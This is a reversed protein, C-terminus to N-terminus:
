LPFVVLLTLSSCLFCMKHDSTLRPGAQRLSNVISRLFAKYRTNVESFVVM